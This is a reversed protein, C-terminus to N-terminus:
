LSLLSGFMMPETVGYTKYEKSNIKFVIGPKYTVHSMSFGELDIIACTQAIADPSRKYKSPDKRVTLFNKELVQTIHLVCDKKKSSHLIGKMDSM